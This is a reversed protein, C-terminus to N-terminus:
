KLSQRVIRGSNPDYFRQLLQICTSKGCGSHGVLAVTKGTLIEMNLNQLIKIYPRKPYSFEIDKYRVTYENSTKHTNSLLFPSKILPIRDIVKLVRKAGVLGATLTPAFALSQGVMM